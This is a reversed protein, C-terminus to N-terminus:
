NNAVIEDPLLGTGEYAHLKDLAENFHRCGQGLCALYELDCGACAVLMTKSVTLKGM